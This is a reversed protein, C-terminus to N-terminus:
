FFYLEYKKRIKPHLFMTFSKILSIGTFFGAKIFCLIGKGKMSALTNKIIKLFQEDPSNGSKFLIGKIRFYKWITYLEVTRVNSFNVVFKEGFSVNSHAKLTRLSDYKKEHVLDDHMKTGPLPTYLNFFCNADDLTKVLSLTKKVDDESEEPFGLIFTILPTIGVKKCLSVTRIIKEAPIFKNIKRQVKESGSEVGFMIMRCGSEHMLAFDEEDNVIGVRLYGGWTVELGSEIIRGCFERMQETNNFMLDDTFEFGDAGHNEVLYKMEEILYDLNRRRRVSRNFERNYCFTCNGICGKSYYIHLQKKCGYGTHFYNEPNILSWDLKPLLSLDLLEGQENEVFRGNRLFAIGRIDDFPLNADYHRAMELWSEEGEGMSIYDAYGGRLIEEPVVSAMPGGWVVNVNLSKAAASIEAANKIARYTIVSIGAFDPSYKKILEEPKEKLHSMDCIIAEHGNANLYTAISMLGLPVSVPRFSKEMRPNFLLVRM